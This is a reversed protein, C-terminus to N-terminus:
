LRADTSFVLFWSLMIQINSIIRTLAITHWLLYVSVFLHVLCIYLLAIFISISVDVTQFLFEFSIYMYYLVNYFSSVFFLLTSHFCCGYLFVYCVWWLKISSIWMYIDAICIQLMLLKAQLLTCEYQTQTHNLIVNILM